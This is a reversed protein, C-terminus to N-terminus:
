KRRVTFYPFLQIIEFYIPFASTKKIFGLLLLDESKDSSKAPRSCCSVDVDSCGVYLM